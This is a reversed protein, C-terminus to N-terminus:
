NTLILDATRIQRAAGVFLVQFKPKLHKEKQKKSTQAPKAATTFGASKAPVTVYVTVSLCAQKEGM